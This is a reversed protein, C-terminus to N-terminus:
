VVEYEYLDSSVSRGTFFGSCWGKDQTSNDGKKDITLQKKVDEGM